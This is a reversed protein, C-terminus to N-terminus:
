SVFWLEFLDLLLNPFLLDFSFRWILLGNEVSRICNTPIDLLQMSYYHVAYPISFKIKSFSKFLKICCKHDNLM